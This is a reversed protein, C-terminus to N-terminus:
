KLNSLALKLAKLSIRKSQNLCIGQISLWSIVEYILMLGKKQHLNAGMVFEEEKQHKKYGFNYVPHRFYFM